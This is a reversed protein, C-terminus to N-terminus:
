PSFIQRVQEPTKSESNAERLINSIVSDYANSMSRYEMEEEMREKWNEFCKNFPGRIRREHVMRTAEAGIM